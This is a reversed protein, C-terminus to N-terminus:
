NWKSRRPFPVAEASNVKPDKEIKASRAKAEAIISHHKYIATIQSPAREQDLESATIMGTVLTSMTLGVVLLYYM